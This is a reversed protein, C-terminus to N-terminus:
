NDRAGQFIWSWIQQRLCSPLPKHNFPMRVKADGNILVVLNSEDPKGPLVMPGLKTGKMLGEYTTLDLGSENFGQGGPEHCSVCWGKFIPTIDEAYSITGTQACVQTSPTLVVASGALVVAGVVVSALTIQKGRM